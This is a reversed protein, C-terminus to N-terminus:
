DVIRINPPNRYMSLVSFLFHTIAHESENVQLRKSLKRSGSKLLPDKDLFPIEILKVNSGERGPRM